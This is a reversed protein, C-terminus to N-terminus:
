QFEQLAASAVKTMHLQANDHLFIAKRKEDNSPAKPGQVFERLCNKEPYYM